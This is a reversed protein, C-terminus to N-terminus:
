TKWLCCLMAASPPFVLAVLRDFFGSYSRDLEIPLAFGNVERDVGIAVPEVVGFTFFNNTLLAVDNSGPRQVVVVVDLRTFIIM